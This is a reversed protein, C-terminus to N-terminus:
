AAFPVPEGGRALYIEYIQYDFHAYAYWTWTVAPYMGVFCLLMGLVLVLPGMFVMFFAAKLQEKWTRKVFDMVFGFKFAEGIKQTLGARMIMPRTFLGVLPLSLFISVMGAVPAAAEMVKSVDEGTAQAIGFAVLAVVIAIPISIILAFFFMMFLMGLTAILMAVFPAVGKSLLDAFHDLKFELYPEKKEPDPGNHMGKVMDYLYGYFVLGGVIPVQQIVTALLINQMWKRHETVFSFARWFELKPVKGGKTLNGGGGYPDEATKPPEYPQTM